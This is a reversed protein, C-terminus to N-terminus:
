GFRRSLVLAGPCSATLRLADATGLELALDGWAAKETSPQVGPAAAQRTEIAEKLWSSWLAERGADDLEGVTDSLARIFATLQGAREPAALLDVLAPRDVSTAASFTAVSAMTMWYRHAMHGGRSTAADASRLLLQWFGADLLGPPTRPEHLFSFWADPASESTDADFVPFVHATTFAADAAFLFHLKGTLISAVASHAPTPSDLMSELATSEAEALGAWREPAAQWRSAIRNLWYQALIGPWTNLGRMLSDSWGGPDFGPANRVWLECAITDLRELLPPDLAGDSPKSASLLVESVARVLEPRASLM